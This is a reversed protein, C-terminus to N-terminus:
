QVMHLHYLFFVLKLFVFNRPEPASYPPSIPTVICCHSLYPLQGWHAAVTVTIVWYVYSCCKSFNGGLPDLGINSSFKLRKLFTTRWDLFLKRRDMGGGGGGLWLTSVSYSLDLSHGANSYMDLDVGQLQGQSSFAVRYRGLFPHRTGTSIMDEDRDLMCRIPRSLRLPLFYCCKTEFIASCLSTCNQLM